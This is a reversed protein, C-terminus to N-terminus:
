RPAEGNDASQRETATYTPETEAQIDFVTVKNEPDRVWIVGEGNRIITYDGECDTREAFSEAADSAEKAYVDQWSRESVKDQWPVACQFLICRCDGWGFDECRPCKVLEKM